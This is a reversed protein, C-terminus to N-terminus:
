PSPDISIVLTAAYTGAMLPQGALLNVDLSMSGNVTAGTSTSRGTSSAESAVSTDLVASAANFRASARYHILSDFGPANGMPQQPQMANGSLRVMTPATCSLGDLALTRVHDAKPLGNAIASTFNLTPNTPQTFQCVKVVSGTVPMTQARLLTFTSSTKDFVQAMLNADSYPGDAVVQGAPVSIQVTATGPNGPGGIVIPQSTLPNGGTYLLSAGGGALQVDYNLVGAGSMRAPMTPSFFSLEVTCSASGTVTVTVLKPTFSVFPNYPALTTSTFSIGAISSVACAAKAQGSVSITFALIVAHLLRARM